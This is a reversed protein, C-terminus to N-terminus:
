ADRACALLYNVDCDRGLRYRRTIPNYTM